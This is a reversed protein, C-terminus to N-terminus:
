RNRETPLGFYDGLSDWKAKELATMSFAPRASQYLLLHKEPESAFGPIYNQKFGKIEEEYEPPKSIFYCLFISVFRLANQAELGLELGALPDTVQEGFVLGAL